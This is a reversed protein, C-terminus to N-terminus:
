MKTQMLFQQINVFNGDLHNNYQTPVEIFTIYFINIISSCFSEFDNYYDRKEYNNKINEM